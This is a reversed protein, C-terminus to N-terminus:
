RRPFSIGYRKIKRWLTARGIGLRRAAEQSTSASEFAALLAEREAAALAADLRGGAPRAAARL